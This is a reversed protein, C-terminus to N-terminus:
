CGLMQTKGLLLLRIMAKEVTLKKHTTLWEMCWTLLWQTGEVSGDSVLLVNRGRQEVAQLCTAESSVQQDAGFVIVDSWAGGNAMWAIDLFTMTERSDSKGKELPVCVTVNRHLPVCVWGNSGEGGSSMNRQWQKLLVKLAAAIQTKLLVASSSYSLIKLKQMKQMNNKEKTETVNNKQGLIEQFTRDFKFLVDRATPRMRPDRVLLTSQLFELVKLGGSNYHLLNTRANDSILQQGRGTLRVYFRSWDEDRFLYDGVILEYLLCGLSWVDSQSNTGIRKRRDHQDRASDIAGSITLMEPSKICETGRDLTSWRENTTNRGPYVQAEGFDILRLKLTTVDSAKPKDNTAKDKATDDLKSTEALEDIQKTNTVLINDCKIDYHVIGYQHMMTTKHLIQRFLHLCTSLHKTTSATDCAPQRQRWGSLSESCRSMIMWYGSPTAGYEYLEVAIPQQQQEEEEEEEEKGQESILEVNTSGGSTNDVSNEKNTRKTQKKTMKKKSQIDNDDNIVIGNLLRLATIESFVDVLSCRRSTSTPLPVLKVVLDPRGPVTHITGFQGSAFTEAREIDYENPLFHSTVPSYVERVCLLRVLTEVGHGCEDLSAKRLLQRCLHVQKEHRMHEQLCMPININNAHASHLSADSNKRKAIEADHSGGGSSSSPIRPCYKPHLGGGGPLVCLRLVVLLSSLHLDDSLYMRTSNVRRLYMEEPTVNIKSQQNNGGGNGTIKPSSSSSIRPPSAMTVSSEDNNSGEEEKNENENEDEKSAFLKLSPLGGGGGGSGTDGTATLSLGLSLGFPPPPPPGNPSLELSEGGMLDGSWGSDLGSQMSSLEDDDDYNNTEENKTSDNKNNVANIIGPPLKLQFPKIKTPSSSPSDSTIVPAADTPLSSGIGAMGGGMGGISARVHMRERRSIYEYEASMERVLFDVVGLDELKELVAAVGVSWQERPHEAMPDRRRHLNKVKVGRSNNNGNGNKHKNNLSKTVLSLLSLSLATEKKSPVGVVDGTAVVVISLLCQLYEQCQHLNKKRRERRNRRRDTEESSSKKNKKNKKNNPKSDVGTYGKLFELYFYSVHFTVNKQGLALAGPGSRYFANTIDCIRTRLLASSLRISCVSAMDLHNSTSLDEGLISLSDFMLGSMPNLLWWVSRQVHYPTYYQINSGQTSNSDESQSNEKGIRGDCGHNDNHERIWTLCHQFYQLTTFCRKTSTETAYLIEADIVEGDNYSQLETALSVRLGFSHAAYNRVARNMQRDNILSRVWYFADEEEEEDVTDDEKKNASGEYTRTNLESLSCESSMKILHSALSLALDVCVFHLDSWYSMRLEIDNDDDNMVNEMAEEEENDGCCLSAVLRRVENWVGGDGCWRHHGTLLASSPVRKMYKLMVSLEAAVEYWLLREESSSAAAAATNSVDDERLSVVYSLLTRLRECAISMFLDVAQKTHVTHYQSSSLIGYIHEISTVSLLSNVELEDLVAATQDGIGGDNGSGSGIGIGGSASLGSTSREMNHHHHHHDAANRDRTANKELFHMENIVLLRHMRDVPIHAIEMTPIKVSSTSRLCSHVCVLAHQGINRRLHDSSSSSSSGANKHATTLMSESSPPVGNFTTNALLTTWSVVQLAHKEDLNIDKVVM